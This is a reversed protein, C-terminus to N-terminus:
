IAENRPDLVASLLDALLSGGVGVGVLVMTTGLILPIDNERTAEVTLWGLGQIGFVTEVVVVALVLVSFLEAASASLVPALVNRLVRRGVARESLGKARLYSVYNTRFETVGRARTLSLQSALLGTALVGAPLLVTWALGDGPVPGDITETGFLTVCLAALWFSPVGLLVYSATRGATDAVGEQHRAARVGIATGLVWATLAGPLLYGATRRVADGVIAMVPEGQSPSVGWRFLTIDVVWDAYREALPRDRNRAELYTERIQELEAESAGAFAAAGLSGGLNTDPAWVVVFFTLSVVLYAALVAVVLRKALRRRLSM